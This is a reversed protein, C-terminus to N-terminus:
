FRGVVQVGRGWPVVRLATSKADANPWLLLAATGTALGASGVVFSIISLTSAKDSEEHAQALDHCLGLFEPGPNTCADQRVKGGNADIIRQSALRAQEDQHEAEGRFLLGGVIGLAGTMYAGGVVSMKAMSPGRPPEVEAQASAPESPPLAPPPPPEPALDFTLQLSQGSKAVIHKVLDPKGSRRVSVIHPGPNLPIAHRYVVPALPAGNLIVEFAGDPDLLEITLTGVQAELETRREPVLELVATDSRLHALEEARGLENLAEVYNGLNQECVAIHFLVGPTIKITEIERLKRCAEEWRGAQEDATAERFLRRAIQVEAATPERTPEAVALAGEALVGVVFLIAICRSSIWSRRFM